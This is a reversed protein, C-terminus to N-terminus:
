LDQYREQRDLLMELESSSFLDHLIIDRSRIKKIQLRRCPHDNRQGIEILYDYYKKIGPLMQNKINHNGYAKEKENLYDIIDKYKLGIADKRDALFVSQSYLYSKVTTKTHRMQHLYQEFTTEM